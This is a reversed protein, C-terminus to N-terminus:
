AGELFASDDHPPQADADDAPALGPINHLVDLLCESEVMADCYGAVEPVANFGLAYGAARFLPIDSRADGVHFVEHLAIGHAKAIRDVFRPKDIDEAHAAVGGTYCGDAGVELRPGCWAVFGYRRAFVGAVASWALTSIVAPIGQRALAAVTEGIGDVVPIDDLMREIDAPCLGRYRRADVLAVQANSAKGCAYAAEIAQMEALHGLRRALHQSTTVGRTLTGDLDFSALKWRM